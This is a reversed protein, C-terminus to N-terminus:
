KRRGVSEADIQELRHLCDCGEDVSHTAGLIMQSGAAGHRVSLLHPLPAQTVVGPTPRACFSAPLIPPIIRSGTATWMASHSGASRRICKPKHFWGLATEWGPYHYTQGREAATAADDVCKRVIQARCRHLHVMAYASTQDFHWHAPSTWSGRPRAVPVRPSCREATRVAPIM